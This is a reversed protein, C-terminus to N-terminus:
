VNCSEIRKVLDKPYLRAHVGCLYKKEGVLNTYIYKAPYDCRTISFFVSRKYDECRKCKSEQKNM